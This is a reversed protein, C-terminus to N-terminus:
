VIEPRVPVVPKATPMPTLPAPMGQFAITTLTPEVETVRETGAVAVVVDAMGSVKMLTLM